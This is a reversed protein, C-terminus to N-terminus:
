VRVHGERGAAEALLPVERVERVVGGDRHAQLFVALRVREDAPDGRAVAAVDFAAPELEGGVAEHRLLVAGVGHADLAVVRAHGRADAVRHVAVHERVGEAVGPERRAARQPRVHRLLLVRRLDAQAALARHPADRGRLRDRAGRAGLDREGRHRTRLCAARERGRHRRILADRQALQGVVPVEHVGGPHGDGAARAARTRRIVQLRGVEAVPHHHVDGVAVAVGARPLEPAAVQGDHLHRHPRRVAVHLGVVLRGLDAHGVVVGVLAVVEERQRDLLPRVEGRVAFLVLVEEHLRDGVRPRRALLFRVGALDRDAAVGLVVVLHLVHVERDVHAAVGRGSLVLLGVLDLEVLLGVEEAEAAAHLVLVPHQEGVAEVLREHAVLEAVVEGSLEARGHPHLALPHVHHHVPLVHAVVLEALVDAHGILADGDEVPVGAVDRLRRLLRVRGQRGIVDVRKVHHQLRVAEPHRGAREGVAARVVHKGRLLGVAAREVSLSADLDVPLGPVAAVDGLAEHELDVGLLHGFGIASSSGRRGTEDLVVRGRLARHLQAHRHVRRFVGERVRRDAVEHPLRPPVEALRPHRARVDVRAALVVRIERIEVRHHGVPERLEHRAVVVRAGEAAVAVQAVRVALHHEGRGPVEVVAEARELDADARGGDRVDVALGGVRRDDGLLPDGRAALVVEHPM